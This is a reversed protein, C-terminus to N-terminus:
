GAGPRRRGAAYRERWLEVKRLVDDVGIRSMRGPRRKASVTATEGPEHYADIVLDHFARYPGVRLPDLTSMLSVVPCGLAVSIHLPGTDLSIALASGDLVGVLERFPIGLTSVVPHRVRALIERETELERESRGGVLLPQLGFDAYMRDAVEAWRDPLWEKDARSSGIVLAAAPRDLGAFFEEQRAREEPWPGLKWEVPEHPVGLAQLFEFYQDQVHQPAHAPIKRNTVAIARAGTL